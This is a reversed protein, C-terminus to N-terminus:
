ALVTTKQRVEALIERQQLLGVTAQPQSKTEAIMNHRKQRETLYKDRSKREEVPTRCYSAASEKDRSDRQAKEAKRSVIQRQQLLFM